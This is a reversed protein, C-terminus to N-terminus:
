AEGGGGQPSAQTAKDADAPKEEAPPRTAAKKAERRAADRAKLVAKLEDDTWDDLITKPAAIEGSILGLDFGMAQFYRGEGVFAAYLATEPQGPAERVRALMLAPGKGQCAAGVLQQLNRFADDQNQNQLVLAAADFVLGRHAFLAPIMGGDEGVPAGFEVLADSVVSVFAMSLAEGRLPKSALNPLAPSEDGEREPPAKFEDSDWNIEEGEKGVVEAAFPSPDAIERTMRLMISDVGRLNNAIQGNHDVLWKACVAEWSDCGSMSGSVKKIEKVATRNGRDVEVLLATLRDREVDTGKGLYKDLVELRAM